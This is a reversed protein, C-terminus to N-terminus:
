RKNREPYVKKLITITNNLSETYDGSYFLKEAKDLVPIMSVFGQRILNCYVFSNEAQSMTKTENTLQVIIIDIKRTFDDLLSKAKNLDIPPLSIVNFVLEIDEKLENYLPLYKNDFYTLNIDKILSLLQLVKLNSENLSSFIDEAREKLSVFYSKFKLFIPMIEKQIRSYTDFKNNIYSYPKKNSPLLSYDLEDKSSVLDELMASLRPVMDLYEQDLVYMQKFKDLNLIIKSLDRNIVYVQDKIDDKKAFFMDRAKTEKDFIQYLSNLYLNLKELDVKINKLDLNIVKQMDFNIRKKILNLKVKCDSTDIPYDQKNFEDVLKEIEKVREPLSVELATLYIPLDKFTATIGEILRSIQKFLEKAKQYFMNDLLVDYEDIMSDVKNFILEINSMVLNLVDKNSEIYEKVKRYNEKIPLIENRLSADDEFISYLREKLNNVSKEYSSLSDLNSEYIEKIGQFNNDNILEEFSILAMNCDKALGDQISVYQNHYNIYVNKYDPNNTAVTRLRNLYTLVENEFIGTTYDFMQTLTELRSKYKKQKYGNFAM